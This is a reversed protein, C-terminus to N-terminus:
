VKWPAHGERWLEELQNKDRLTTMPQRFGEHVYTALQGEHALRTLPENEWVTEDSIRSGM